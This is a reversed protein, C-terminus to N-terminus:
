RAARWLYAAAIVVRLRRARAVFALYQDALELISIKKLDVKQDRALTLLVDIPGEFGDLDLHLEMEGGPSPAGEDPTFSRDFEEDVVIATMARYEGNGLLDLKDCLRRDTEPDVGRCQSRTRDASRDASPRDSRDAPHDHRIARAAGTS